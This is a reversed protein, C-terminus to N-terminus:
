QEYKIEKNMKFEKIEYQDNTFVFKVIVFLNALKTM